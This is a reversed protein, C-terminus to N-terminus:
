IYRGCKHSFRILIYFNPTNLKELDITYIFRHIYKMLLPAPTVSQDLVESGNVFLKISKM